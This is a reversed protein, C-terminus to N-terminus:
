SSVLKHQFVLVSGTRRPNGTDRRTGMKCHLVAPDECRLQENSVFEFLRVCPEGSILQDPFQPPRVRSSHRWDMDLIRASTNRM